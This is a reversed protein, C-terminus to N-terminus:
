KVRYATLIFDDDKLGNDDLLEQIDDISERVNIVTGDNLSIKTYDSSLDANLDSSIKTIASFPYLVKKTGKEDTQVTFFKSM